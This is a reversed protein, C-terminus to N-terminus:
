CKEEIELVGIGAFRKRYRERSRQREKKETGESDPHTRKHSFSARGIRESDPSEEKIRALNPERKAQTDNRVIRMRPIGFRLALVRRKSGQGNSLSEKSRELAPQEYDKVTDRPISTM